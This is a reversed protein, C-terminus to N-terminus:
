DGSSLGALWRHVAWTAELDEKNYKRISDMTERRLTEDETEVAKIYQAMSWQGGYEDLTRKYGAQREVVKISYSPIPLVVAQKTLPLLDCLNALVRAGVGKLDGFRQIYKKVNTEEYVAWHVFPIDGYRAFIGEAVALFEEWAQKEGEPGFGATAQVCPGPEAGFVQTGWLYTKEPADLQPPLGELDFMVYNDSKPIQAPGLVIPKGAIFAEAHLLISKAAKGVKQHRKGHPAKQEALSEANFRGPLERYDTIGMEHFMRAIGQSVVPLIAPDRSNVAPPWCHERYACDGCKSWGVPEYDAYGSRYTDRVMELTQLAETANSFPVEVVEGTGAVVEVRRPHLGTQTEFLWGYLELQVIIERHEEPTIQRSLKCDRVVYSDGDLILFDPIGVVEVDAAFPAPASLVPQYQRPEKRAIAAATAKLREDMSGQSLDLVPELSERHRAEHRRGLEELVQAFAGPEAEKLGQRYCELRKRCKEPSYYRVLDSASLRM